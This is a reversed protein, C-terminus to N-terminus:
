RHELMDTEPLRLRSMALMGPRTSIDFSTKLAYGLRRHRRAEIQDEAKGSWHFSFALKKDTTYEREV